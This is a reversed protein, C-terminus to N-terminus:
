LELKEYVWSVFLHLQIERPTYVIVFLHLQIVMPAYIIVFAHLQIGRPTYILVFAHLQIGPSYLNMERNNNGRCAFNPPIYFDSQGATRGDLRGDM